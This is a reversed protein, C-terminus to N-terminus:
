RKLSATEVPAPAPQPQQQAVQVKQPANADITIVEVSAIKYQTALDTPTETGDSFCTAPLETCCDITPKCNTGAGREFVCACNFDCYGCIAYSPAAVLILVVPILLRTFKKM